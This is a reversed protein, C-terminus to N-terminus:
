IRELANTVVLDTVCGNSILNDHLIHLVQDKGFREVLDYGDASRRLVGVYAFHEFIWQLFEKPNIDAYALQCWSNFEFLVLARLDNITDYASKLIPFEFGEVDMKIFDVRTLALQRVIEQLTLMPVETGVSELHGHASMETFYAKGIRDGVAAEVIEVNSAANAAVNARLCKAVSPAAEVAIVRGKRAHRALFLSKVGINAGIDICVADEDVFQQCFAQFEPEYNDSIQKFYADDESVGHLILRHRGLQVVKSPKLESKPAAASGNTPSGGLAVHSSLPLLVSASEITVSSSGSRGGNEIVIWSASRLDLGGLLTESPKRNEVLPTRAIFDSRDRNLLGVWPEGTVSKTRIRLLANGARRVRPPISLYAAYSWPEAPTEITLPWSVPAPKGWLSEGRAAVLPVEEYEELKAQPDLATLAEAVTRGTTVSVSDIGPM